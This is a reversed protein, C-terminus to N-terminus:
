KDSVGSERDVHDAPLHGGLEVLKNVFGPFSVDVCSIDDVSVGKSSACGAIAGVMALRHDAKTEVFGDRWGDPKGTVELGDVHEVVEVGLGSLLHAMATLRDSEKVRLEGAGRIRSRGRAKAAALLFVPLEDILLPVEQPEIDTARLESYRARVRGVPETEAPGQIEATIDAGMRELVKLLGFRTPNLGVGEVTVDSGPTLLAAVLLFAASSFDGPVTLSTLHLSDVPWVRVVGPGDDPGEREVRGGAQRIMRETHDRSGGPESVSTVGDARLGALLLCSKVQASAVALVHDVARLSGGRISLPPLTGSARGGVSAGMAALPELVRQVPRRRISGDGTLVCYIDRSAVLGPLLRLLTGANAVDIVDEPERLGEWGQGHVLLREGREEVRVGLATVAALTAMTDASRLLGMLEVVGSNVSGLLLARHSISKDGPVRLTGRLGGRVPLFRNPWPASQTCRSM